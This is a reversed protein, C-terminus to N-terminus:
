QYIVGVDLVAQDPVSGRGEVKGTRAHIAVYTRIGTGGEGGVDKGM